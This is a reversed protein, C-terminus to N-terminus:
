GACRLRSPDRSVEDLFQQTMAKLCARLFRRHEQEFFYAHIRSPIGNTKGGRTANFYRILTSRDSEPIDFREIIPKLIKTYTKM